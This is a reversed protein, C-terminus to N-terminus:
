GKYSCNATTLYFQPQNHALRLISEVPAAKVSCKINCKSVESQCSACRARRLEAVREGEEVTEDQKVREKLPWWLVYDAEM